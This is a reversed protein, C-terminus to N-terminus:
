CNDVFSVTNLVEHNHMLRFQITQGISICGWIQFHDGANLRGNSRSDVFSVHQGSFMRVPDLSEVLSGQSNSLEASYEALPLTRTTSTVSITTQGPGSATARLDVHLPPPPPQTPVPILLVIATSSVAAMTVLTGLMMVAITQAQRGEPTALWPMTYADYPGRKIWSFLSAPFRRPASGDKM